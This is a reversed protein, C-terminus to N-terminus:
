RLHQAGRTSSSTTSGRVRGLQGPANLDDSAVHTTGACVSVYRQHQDPLAPAAPRELQQPRRTPVRKFPRLCIGKSHLHTDQCPHPLLVRLCIMCTCKCAGRSHKLVCAHLPKIGVTNSAPVCCGAQKALWCVRVLM